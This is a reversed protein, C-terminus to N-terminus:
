DWRWRDALAQAGAVTAFLETDLFEDSFQSNFSQAFSKEWPSGPIIYAEITV